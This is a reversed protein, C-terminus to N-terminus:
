PLVDVQWTPLARLTGGRMALRFACRIMALEHNVPAATMDQALCHAAYAEAYISAGLPERTM